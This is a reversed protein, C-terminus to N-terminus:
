DERQVSVPQGDALTQFGLTIVTEGPTLGALIELRNDYAEGTTVTRRRAIWRGNEEEAVFLFQSDGAEQVANQPVTMAKPNTYDNITVVALMNPKLGQGRAPLRIEIDFTRNNPDIVQSVADITLDFSRDAVPIAVRVPDGKKIRSIFNESLSAKIKLKSLQVIRIAGRGAAAMEGEKILVDDVMGDIPSTIKTLRYQEQLTQLRKELNDRNNKAQLYELESGINKEWLRAQREYITTALSLANQLEALSSELIAGDLEALLQGATVRDGQRVYLRKVLGNSQAPILINNDSEVTGQVQIFHRFLSPQAEAGRVYALAEEASQGNNRAIETKLQEIRKDLAERQDELRDLEAQRDGRRCAPILLLSLLAIIIFNRKMTKDKKRSTM